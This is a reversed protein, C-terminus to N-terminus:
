DASTEVDVYIGDPRIDVSYSRVGDPSGPTRGTTVNYRLGHGPCTVVTGSLQGMGLAASQHPCEGEIAYFAGEVNFLAVPGADTEYPWGRGVPPVDDVDCIRIWRAM